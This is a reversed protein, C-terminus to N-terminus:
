LNAEPSNIRSIEQEVSRDVHYTFSAAAAISVGMVIGYVSRCNPNQLASLAMQRMLLSSAIWICGQELLSLDPKEGYKGVVKVRKYNVDRELGNYELGNYEFGDGNLACDQFFGLNNACYAGIGIGISAATMLVAISTSGLANRTQSAWYAGLVCPAANASMLGLNSLFTWAKLNTSMGKIEREGGMNEVIISNIYPITICLQM